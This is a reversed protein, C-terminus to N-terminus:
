TICPIREIELRYCASETVGPTGTARFLSHSPSDSILNDGMLELVMYLSRYSGSANEMCKGHRISSNKELKQGERKVMSRANTEFPLFLTLLHIILIYLSRRGARMAIQSRIFALTARVRYIYDTIAACM